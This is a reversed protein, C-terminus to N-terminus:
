IYFKLLKDKRDGDFHLEILDLLKTWNQLIEEATLKM